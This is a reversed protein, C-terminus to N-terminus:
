WGTASTYYYNAFCLVKSRAGQSATIAMPASQKLSAGGGLLLYLLLLLLLMLPHLL